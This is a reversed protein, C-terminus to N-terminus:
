NDQSRPTPRKKHKNNIQKTLYRYMKKKAWSKLPTTDGGGGGGLEKYLLFHWLREPFCNLLM